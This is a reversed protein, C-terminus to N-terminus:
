NVTRCLRRARVVIGWGSLIITSGGRTVGKAGFVLELHSVAEAVDYCSHDAAVIVCGMSTLCEGSLEM